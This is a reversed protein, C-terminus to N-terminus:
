ETSKKSQQNKLTTRKNYLIIQWLFLSDSVFVRIKIHGTHRKNLWISYEKIMMIEPFFWTIEFNRYPALWEPLIFREGSGQNRTALKADGEILNWSKKIM